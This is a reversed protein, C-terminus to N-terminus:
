EVVILGSMGEGLHPECHYPFRGPVEFRHEFVQGTSSLPAGTWAGPQTEADPTITHFRSSASVWRVTTGVKVQLEAPEFRDFRLEVITPPEAPRAADRQCGAVLPFLLTLRALRPFAAGRLNHPSGRKQPDSNQRM